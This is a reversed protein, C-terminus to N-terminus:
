AWEWQCPWFEPKLEGQLGYKDLALNAAVFDLSHSYPTENSSKYGGELEFHVIPTFGFSQIQLQLIEIAIKAYKDLM